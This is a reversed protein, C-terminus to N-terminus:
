WGGAYRSEWAIDRRMSDPVGMMDFINHMPLLAACQDVFDAEGQPALGDVVRKANAEIQHSTLRM